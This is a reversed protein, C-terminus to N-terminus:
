QGPQLTAFPCTPAVNWRNGLSIIPQPFSGGTQECDLSRLAGRASNLAVTVGSITEPRAVLRVAAFYTNGGTPTLPGAITNGTIMAQDIPGSIADLHIGSGAPAPGTFTIDNDRVGLNRVSETYIADANSDTVITNDSISVQNPIGGSHPTVKIAPGAAGHRRIVNGDIKVGDAVNEADVVGVGTAETVDFTNDDVLIDQSRYLFLGRGAFTNGTIIAHAYNTLAASFNVTSDAFSNGALRLGDDSGGGTAEADFPTDNINVGFHNGLVALSNVNRQVGIGSRGCDIFSSGVITVRQVSTAPTNGLLRICDGMRETGVHPHVFTVDRVTVDAVPMSCTGNADTCFGSGIAIAHTQEQPDTNTAGSTDITMREITIDSAGPDLSFVSVAAQQQDGSLDIVTGPGTGTITVHAGHTSLAASRDYSGVPARSVAWHGSGICVTGGGAAVADDIAAQIRPSDDQRGTPPVPYSAPDFCGGPGTGAPSATVASAVVGGGLGALLAGALAAWRLSRRVARGRGECGLSRQSRREM